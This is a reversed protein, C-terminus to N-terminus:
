RWPREIVIDGMAFQIVNPSPISLQVEGIESIGAKSIDKRIAAEIRILNGSTLPTNKMIKQTESIYEANNVLNGWWQPDDTGGFLAHLLDTEPGDTMIVENGEILFDGGNEDLTMKVDTM